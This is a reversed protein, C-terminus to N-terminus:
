YQISGHSLHLMVDRELRKRSETDMRYGGAIMGGCFLTTEFGRIKFTYCVKNEVEHFDDLYNLWRLTYKRKEDFGIFLDKVFANTVVIVRPKIEVINKCFEELLAMFAQKLNLPDKKFAGIFAKKLISQEQIVLPFVDIMAYNNGVHVGKNAYREVNDVFKEIEKFYDNKPNNYYICDIPTGSYVSLYYDYDTGSPNCNVFLIGDKAIRRYLPTIEIYPIAELPYDIEKRKPLDKAFERQVLPLKDKGIEQGIFLNAYKDWWKRYNSFVNKAFDNQAFPQLSM